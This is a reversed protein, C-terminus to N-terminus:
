SNNEKKKSLYDSPTAGIILKFAANFTSRYRYGAENYVYDLTYKEMAGTDLMSKVYNIRFSNLLKHFDGDGSAKIARSIYYTDADLAKALGQVNFDPNRFPKYKELYEIIDNYLTKELDGVDAQMKKTLESEDISRKKVFVFIFFASLIIAIIVTVIDVRKQLLPTLEIKPFLSNFFFMVIIMTSTLFIWVGISRVSFAIAGLLILIYWSFVVPDGANWFICGCPFIITVLAYSLYMLILSEISLKKYCIIGFLWVIHQIAYIYMLSKLIPAGNASYLLGFVVTIILMLILFLFVMKRLFLAAVDTSNEVHNNIM